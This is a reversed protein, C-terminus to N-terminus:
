VQQNWNQFSQLFFPNFWQMQQYMQNMFEMQGDYSFISDTQIGTEM